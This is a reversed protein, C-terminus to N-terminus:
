AVKRLEIEGYVEPAGVNSYAAGFAWSSGNAESQMMDIRFTKSSPITFKGRLTLARAFERGGSGGNAPVRTTTGYLVVQSDTSNYLRLRAMTVNDDENRQYSSLIEYTGAPLTFNNSSVVVSGTDDHVIANLKRQIWSNKSNDTGGNTGSTEQHQLLIYDYGSGGGSGDMPIWGTGNWYYMTKSTTSYYLQGESPSAPASSLPDIVPAHLANQNFVPM